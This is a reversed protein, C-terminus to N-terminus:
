EDIQRLLRVNGDPSRGGPAERATSVSQTFTRPVVSQFAARFHGALRDKGGCRGHGLPASPPGPQFGSSLARYTAM